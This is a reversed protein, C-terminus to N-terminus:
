GWDGRLRALCRHVLRAPQVPKIDVPKCRERYLVMNWRVTLRGDSRSSIMIDIINENQTLIWLHKIWLASKVSDIGKSVIGIFPQDIM